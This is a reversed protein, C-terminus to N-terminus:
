PNVNPTCGLGEIEFRCDRLGLDQGMVRFRDLM